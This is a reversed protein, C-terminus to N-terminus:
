YQRLYRGIDETTIKPKWYSTQGPTPKRSLRDRGQLRFMLAVPTIVGIFLVVLMVRSVVWGIPFAAVTSSVFLWRVARPRVLGAVGVLVALALLAAAIRANGRMLWQNAALGSLVLLWAAAFQRLIRESPHLNIDLM